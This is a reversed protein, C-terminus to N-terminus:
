PSHCANNRSRLSPNRLRDGSKFRGHDSNRNTNAKAITRKSFLGDFIKFHLDVM